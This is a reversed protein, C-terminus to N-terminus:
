LATVKSLGAGQMASIAHVLLWVLFLGIGGAIAAVAEALGPAPLPLLGPALLTALLLNRAVLGWSLPQRLQPRGCGCDIHRRGRMINVAMAWAFLLLLVIAVVLAPAMGALLAAGTALEVVPLFAAVPAVLLGPLLRYNAVVGPLLSRHRLKAVGAALFILGTCVSVALSLLALVPAM